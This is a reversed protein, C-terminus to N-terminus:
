CCIQFSFFVKLKGVKRSTLVCEGKGIKYALVRLVVARPGYEARRVCKDPGRVLCVNIRGAFLVCM